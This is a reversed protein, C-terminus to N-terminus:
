DDSLAKPKSLLVQSLILTQKAPLRGVWKGIRTRTNVIQDARHDLHDPNDTAEKKVVPAKKSPRNVREKSLSQKQKQLFEKWDIALEEEVLPSPAHAPADNRAKREVFFWFLGGIFLFFYAVFDEVSM